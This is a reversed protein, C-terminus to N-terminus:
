QRKERRITYNNWEHLKNLTNKINWRGPVNKVPLLAHLIFITGRFILSAGVASAFKFHSFYTEKNEELHKWQM